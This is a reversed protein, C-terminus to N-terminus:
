KATGAQRIPGPQQRSNLTIGFFVSLAAALALALAQVKSALALAM